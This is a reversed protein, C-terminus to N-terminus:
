AAYLASTSGTMQPNQLLNLDPVTGEDFVINEIVGSNCGCLVGYDRTHDVPVASLDTSYTWDDQVIEYYRSSLGESQFSALKLDHISGANCAFLGWAEDEGTYELIGSLKYGNGNLEGTFPANRSGIPSFSDGDELDRSDINADLIYKGSLNDAIGCFAEATSIHIYGDDPTTQAETTNELSEGATEPTRGCASLAFLMAVVLMAACYKKM